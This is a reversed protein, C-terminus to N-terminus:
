GVQIHLVTRRAPWAMRRMARASQWFPPVMGVGLAARDHRAARSDGWIGCFASHVPGRARGRSRVRCSPPSKGGLLLALPSPRRERIALFYRICGAFCVLFLPLFFVLWVPAAARRLEDDLDARGSMGSVAHAPRFIDLRGLRPHMARADQAFNPLICEAAQWGDSLEPTGPVYELLSIHAVFLIMMALACTVATKAIAKASVRRLGNRWHELVICDSKERSIGGGFMRNYIIGNYIIIQWSVFAQTESRAFIRREAFIPNALSLQKRM